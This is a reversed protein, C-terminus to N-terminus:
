YQLSAPNCKDLGLPLVKNHPQKPINGTYHLGQEGTIVWIYLIQHGKFKM